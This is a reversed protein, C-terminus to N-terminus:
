KSVLMFKVFHLNLNKVPNATFCSTVNETPCPHPMAYTNNTGRPELPVYIVGRLQLYRLSVYRQSILLNGYSNVSSTINHKYGSISACGTIYNHQHSFVTLLNNGFYLLNTLRQQKCKIHEISTAREKKLTGINTLRYLQPEGQLTSSYQYDAAM